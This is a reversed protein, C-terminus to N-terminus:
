FLSDIGGRKKKKIYYREEVRGNMIDTLYISARYKKMFAERSHRIKKERKMARYIVIGATIIISGNLVITTTVNGLEM